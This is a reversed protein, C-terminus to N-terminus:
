KKVCVCVDPLLQNLTTGRPDLSQLSLGMKGPGQINRLQTVILPLCFTVTKLYQGM